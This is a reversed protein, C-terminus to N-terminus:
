DTLEATMGPATVPTSSLDIETAKVALVVLLTSWLILFVVLMMMLHFNACKFARGDVNSSPLTALSSWAECQESSM